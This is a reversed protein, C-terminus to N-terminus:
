QKRRIAAPPSSTKKGAPKVPKKATKKLPKSIVATDVAVAATDMVPMETQTYKSEVYGAPISFINNDFHMPKIDIAEATIVTKYRLTDASEEFGSQMVIEAGLVIKNNQVSAFVPNPGFQAPVTYHLSDAVYFVSNSMMMFSGLLQGLSNSEQLVGTTHYGAITKAPSFAAPQKLILAKKKYTNSEPSINYQAASDFLVLLENSDYTEKEKFRIKIANTGFLVKLEADPKDEATAHLKYTIEGEFNKQANLTTFSLICCLAPIIKKM